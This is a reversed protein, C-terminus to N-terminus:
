FSRKVMEKAKIKWFHNITDKLMVLILYKKILKNAFFLFYKKKQYKMSYYSNETLFIIWRYYKEYVFGKIEKMAM